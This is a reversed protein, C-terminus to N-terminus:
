TLPFVFKFYINRVVIRVRKVRRYVSSHRTNYVFAVSGGRLKTKEYSFFFYKIQFAFIDAKFTGNYSSKNNQTTNLYFKTM